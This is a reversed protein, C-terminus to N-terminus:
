SLLKCPIHLKEQPLRTTSCRRDTAARGYLNRVCSQAASPTKGWPHDAHLLIHRQRQQAAMASHLSRRDTAGTRELDSLSFGNGARLCIVDNQSLQWQPSCRDETGTSELDSLSFIASRPFDLAELTAIFNTINNNICIVETAMNREKPLEWVQLVTINACQTAAPVKGALRDVALGEPAIGEQMCLTPRNCM